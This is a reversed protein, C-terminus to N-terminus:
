RQACYPRVECRLEALLPTCGAPCGVPGSGLFFGRRLAWQAGVAMVGGIMMQVGIAALILGMLRSVVMIANKGLVRTLRRGQTVCVWSAGCIVVFAAFVVAKELLPKQDSYHM